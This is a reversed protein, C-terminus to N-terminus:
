SSPDARNAAKSARVDRATFPEMGVGELGSKVLADILDVISIKYHNALRHADYWTAERVSFHRYPTRRRGRKGYIIYKGQLGPM